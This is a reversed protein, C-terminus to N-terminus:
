GGVGGWVYCKAWLSFYPNINPKPLPLHDTEWFCVNIWSNKWKNEACSCPRLSLLEKLHKFLLTHWSWEVRSGQMLAQPEENCVNGNKAIFWEHFTTAHVTRRNCYHYPTRFSLISATMCILTRSYVIVEEWCSLRYFKSPNLDTLCPPFVFYSSGNHPRWYICSSLINYM